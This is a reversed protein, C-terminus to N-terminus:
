GTGLTGWHRSCACMPINVWADCTTVEDAEVNGPSCTHYIYSYIFLFWQGAYLFIFWIGLLLYTHCANEQQQLLHVMKLRPRGKVVQCRCLALAEM